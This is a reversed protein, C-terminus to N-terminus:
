TPLYVTTLLPSVLCTLTTAPGAFFTLKMARGDRTGTAFGSMTVPTAKTKSLLWFRTSVGVGTFNSSVTAPAPAERVTVLAFPTAQILVAEPGRAPAACNTADIGPASTFRTTCCTADSGHLMRM